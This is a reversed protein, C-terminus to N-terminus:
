IHLNLFIYKKTNFRPSLKHSEVRLPLDQTSGTDPQTRRDGIGPPTRLFLPPERGPVGVDASLCRSQTNASKKRKSLSSRLSTVLPVRLPRSVLPRAPFSTATKSWGCLNIAGSPPTPLCLAVIHRRWTRNPKSRSATLNPIFGPPCAPRHILSPASCWGHDGVV